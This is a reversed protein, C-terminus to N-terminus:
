LSSAHLGGALNLCISLLLAWAEGQLRGKIIDDCQKTQLLVNQLNILTFRQMFARIIPERRQWVGHEVLFASSLSCNQLKNYLGIITRAERAIAWAILIPETGENKLSNFQQLTRQIAGSLASDVLDFISFRADQLVLEKISNATLQSPALCLKCKEIAQAASLLNGETKEFLLQIVEDTPQFGVSLLRKKLMLLTDKASLPRALILCSKSELLGFYSAQQQKFDFKTTHLLLIINNEIACDATTIIQETEKKSLKLEPLYCEVLRKESFLSATNIRAVIANWDLQMGLEFSEREYGQAKAQERIADLSEQYQLPEDGLVLYSSVLGRKLHLPLDKAQIKM